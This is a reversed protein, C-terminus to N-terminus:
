NHDFNSLIALIESQSSNCFDILTFFFDLLRNQPLFDILRSKYFELIFEIKSPMKVNLHSFNAVVVGIMGDEDPETIGDM